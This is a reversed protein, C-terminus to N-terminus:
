IGKLMKQILIEKNIANIQNTEILTLPVKKAKKQRIAKSLYEPPIFSEMQPWTDTLQKTTTFKNLLTSLQERIKNHKVANTITPQTSEIFQIYIDLLEGKLTILNNTKSLNSNYRSFKHCHPLYIENKLPIHIYNIDESQYTYNDGWTSNNYYEASTSPMYIKPIAFYLEEFAPFLEKPNYGIINPNQSLIEKNKIIQQLALNAFKEAIVNFKKNYESELNSSSTHPILKGVNRMIENRKDYSLHTTAM